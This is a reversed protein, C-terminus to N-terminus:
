PAPNLLVARGLGTTAEIVHGIIQGRDNMSVVRDLTYGPTTLKVRTTKGNRWLFATKITDQFALITANDTIHVPSAASMYRAPGLFPNLDIASTYPSSTLLLTQAYIGVVQGTVNISYDASGANPGPNDPTRFGPDHSPGYARAAGGEPIWIGVVIASNNMEAPYAGILPQTDAAAKVVWGSVQRSISGTISRWRGILLDGPANIRFAFQGCYSSGVGVYKMTSGSWLTGRDCYNSGATDSVSGVVDGADNLGEARSSRATTPMTLETAIGTRWLMARDSGAADKAWGAVDGNANLGLADADAGGLGALATVTYPADPVYTVFTRTVSDVLGLEDRLRLKLSHRGSSLTDPYDFNWTTSDRSQVVAIMSTPVDFNSVRRAASTGEDIVLEMRPQEDIGRTTVSLTLGRQFLTDALGARIDITSKRYVRVQATDTLLHPDFPAGPSRYDIEVLVTQLGPSLPITASFPVRNDMQAGGYLQVTVLAGAAAYPDLPKYKVRVAAIGGDSEALGKVTLVTDSVVQDLTPSEITLRAGPRTLVV